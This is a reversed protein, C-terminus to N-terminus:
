AIAPKVHSRGNERAKPQRNLASFAMRGRSFFTQETTREPGAPISMLGQKADNGTYM